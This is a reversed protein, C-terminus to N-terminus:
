RAANVDILLLQVLQHRYLKLAIAMLICDTTATIKSHVSRLLCQKQVLVFSAHLFISRWYNAKVNNVYILQFVHKKGPM